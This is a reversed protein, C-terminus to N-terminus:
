AVGSGDGAWTLEDGSAYRLQHNDIMWRIAMLTKDENSTHLEHVLKELKMTRETTLARIRGALTDFEIEDLDLKNRELCYDCKGCRRADKEGFYRLLMRSRCHHLTSAYRLVFAARDRYRRKRSNLDRESLLLDPAAVRPRTFVLQPTNTRPKYELIQRNELFRLNRIVQEPKAPVRRAIEEEDIKVFDDFIGEYMRLLTKVFLDLGPHEVQFRYLDMQNVLFLIRSPLHVADSLSIMGDSELVRLANHVAVPHMDYQRCFEILSFDYSAGLGSGVPVQLYNGLAHYIKRIKAVPPFSWRFRKELDAKDEPTYFLAAYAKSGDRGARGAEQFYAEPADPLDLHLVTRVDPKDIGMGFANTCVMVRTSNRLWAAQRDHRVQTDLGAHYFDASIGQDNLLSAVERTKRRNRVYVISSGNIRRLITVAKKIKDEDYLVVYSLNTREFSQRFVRQNRFLLQKCIDDQVEPTATATLALVPVAPHLERIAAVQLYPPRFDYGWQSICHAEDVAFLNVKMREIRTRVIDSLLREPSLYLFKYDGHICNDLAIDVEHRSMGSIVAVAKIGKKKLSEVQDKMLAILPSVVVCIGERALASVQYCASKGGGTPLLALTDHGDLVSRIIEEQLPRFAAYGWYRTLIQKLEM